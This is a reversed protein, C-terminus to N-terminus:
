DIKKITVCGTESTLEYHVATKGDIDLESQVKGNVSVSYKGSAIGSVTFCGTESTGATKRVSLSLTCVDKDLEAKTLSDTELTVSIHKDVFNLRRFLGDAPIVTFKDDNETVNCGYGVLGLVPDNTVVDSSLLQLGAWLSIDSEASESYPFGHDWDYVFSAHYNGWNTGVKGILEPQGSNIHAFPSLKFPYVFKWMADGNDVVSGFYDDFIKGHLGVTYQFLWWEMDQRNGTTQWYWVPVKGTWAVSKDITVKMANTNGGLKSFFYAGEEGTSDTGFESGFPYAQSNMTNCKEIALCYIEDALSNKGETRLAAIIDPVTQEGMLGVWPELILSSRLILAAAELYDAAKWRYKLNPYRVATKYMSYFSNYMRPYNYGRTCLYPEAAPFPDSWCRGHCCKHCLYGDYEGGHIVEKEWVLDVLYDDTVSIESQVPSYVQKELIFAPADYMQEFDNNSCNNGGLKAVNKSNDWEFFSLYHPDNEDTIRCNEILFDVRRQIADALPEEIWFQLVGRKGDGYNYTVDNRGLKSFEIEYISHDDFERLKHIRASPDSATVSTIQHKTHLDVTAKLNTPLIMGPVVSIDVLGERYLLKGLEDHDSAIKHLLFSYHKKEGADLTLSTSELYSHKGKNAALSKIYYYEPPNAWTIQTSRLTRYELSTDTSPDPTFMLKNGGGKARELVLYSANYSIYNDTAALYKEYPSEFQWHNNWSIPLCIDYFTIAKGSVNEIDIDFRLHDGELSYREKLAFDSKGCLGSKEASDACYCVSIESNSLKEIHRIDASAGTTVERASDDGVAYNFRMEGFFQDAGIEYRHESENTVFNTDYPENKLKLSKIEGYTGTVVSFIENEIAIDHSIDVVSVNNFGSATHSVFGCVGHSHTADCLDAVPVGPNEDRFFSAEKDNQVRVLIHEGKCIVRVHMCTELEIDIKAVRKVTPDGDKCVGFFAGHTLTDLRLFYYNKEDTMRFVIDATGHSNFQVTILYDFDTYSTLSHALPSGSAHRYYTKYDEHVGWTGAPAGEELTWKGASVWDSTHYEGFINEPDNQDKAKVFIFDTNKM